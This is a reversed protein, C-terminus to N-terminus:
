KNKIEKYLYNLLKPSMQSGYNWHADSYFLFASKNRGANEMAQRIKDAKLALEVQWYNPVNENKGAIEQSIQNIRNIVYDESAFRKEIAM